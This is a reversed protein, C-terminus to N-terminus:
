SQNTNMNAASLVSYFPDESSRSPHHVPSQSNINESDATMVSPNTPFNTKAYVTRIASKIQSEKIEEYIHTEKNEPERSTKNNKHKFRTYSFVLVIVLIMIVILIAVYIGVSDGTTTYTRSTTTFISSTETTLLSATMETSPTPQGPPDEVKLTIKKLSVRYIGDKSEAGCWYEGAHNSSVDSITVEISRGTNTVSVKNTQGSRSLVDTCDFRNQRCFFKVWSNYKKPYECKITIEPETVSITLPTQCGHKDDGKKLNLKKSSSKKKDKKYFQCNYKKFDKWSLSRIVVRLKKNIADHYLSFRDHEEWVNKQSSCIHWRSDDDDDRAVAVYDYTEHPQPYTCSFEVWGDRCATVDDSDAECGTLLSLFLLLLMKM